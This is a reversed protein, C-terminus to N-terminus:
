IGYTVVALKLKCLVLDRHPSRRNALISKM